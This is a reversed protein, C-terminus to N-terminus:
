KKEETKAPKTKETKDNKTRNYETLIIEVRAIEYDSRARRGKSAIRPYTAKKNASAHMVSLDDAMGKVRANAMASQLVGLVIGASKVPYRGKKGGLERRHGLKKNHSRYRIAVEGNSAKGLFEVAWNASKKRIAGCVQVLDKYSADASELRACACKKIDEEKIEQSYGKMAM